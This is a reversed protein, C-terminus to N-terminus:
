IIDEDEGRNREKLKVYARGHAASNNRSKPNVGVQYIADVADVIELGFEFHLRTWLDWDELAELEEDFGGATRFDSTAVMSGIVAFNRIRLDAREIMMPEDDTTGDLYVGLTSPRYIASAGQTFTQIAHMAGIYRYDLTDDADLFIIWDTDIERAAENRSSGLSRNTFHRLVVQDPKRTQNVTSRTAGRAKDKWEDSGFTAIVVGITDEMEAVAGEM